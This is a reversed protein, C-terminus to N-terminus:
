PCEKSPKRQLIFIYAPLLKSTIFACIPFSFISLLLPHIKHGFYRRVAFRYIQPDLPFIFYPVRHNPITGFATILIEDSKMLLSFLNKFLYYFRYPFKNESNRFNIPNTFGFILSGGPKFLAMLYKVHNYEPTNKRIIIPNFSPSHFPLASITSHIFNTNTTSFIGDGISLDNKQILWATLKPKNVELIPNIFEDVTNSIVLIRSDDPLDVLFRWDISDGLGELVDEGLSLHQSGNSFVLNM